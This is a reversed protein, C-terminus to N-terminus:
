GILHQWLLRWALVWLPMAAVALVALVSLYVLVVRTDGLKCKSRLLGARRARAYGVIAMASFALLAIPGLLCVLLAVTANVCLRLPDFGGPPDGVSGDRQALAPTQPTLHASSDSM